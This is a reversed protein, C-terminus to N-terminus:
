VSHNPTEEDLDYGLFWRYALNLEVGQALRRESPLGYLYGLLAMEFLAVPEESAKGTPSYYPGTM